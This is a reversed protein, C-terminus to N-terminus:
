CGEIEKIEVENGRLLYTQDSGCYPCVRGYQVTPYTRGCDNCVTVADIREIRLESDRLLDNKKQAWHWCDAFYDELIGSVEGLRMTVSSIRTLENERAIDGLTDMAAFVVGLEHM